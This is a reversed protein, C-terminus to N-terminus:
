KNKITFVEYRCQAQTKFPMQWGAEGPSVYLVTDGYRYEGLNDYGALTYVISLPWLQGAHSHGSVQLDPNLIGFEQKEYPEHDIVINFNKKNPFTLKEAPKREPESVDERGLVTVGANVEAFEDALIIINNSKITDNLEDETYQQGIIDKAHAQRDHNGYVYYVPSSIRGFLAFISEMDDRSTYEDCIDGGLVVFDPNIENIEDVVKELKNLSQSSGYHVDSLFVFNTDSSVKESEYVHYDPVVISSNIMGYALYVTACVASLLLMKKYNTKTVIDKKSILLIILRLVGFAFDGCLAIYIGVIFFGWRWFVPPGIMELAAAAIILLLELLLFLIKKIPKEDCKFFLRRVLYLLSMGLLTTIILKIGQSM